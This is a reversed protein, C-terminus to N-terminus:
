EVIGYLKQINQILLTEEEKRTLDTRHRYASDQRLDAAIDSVKNLFENGLVVKYKTEVIDVDCVFKQRSIEKRKRKKVLDKLYKIAEKQRKKNYADEWFM